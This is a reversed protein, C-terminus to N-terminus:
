TLCNFLENFLLALDIVILDHDFLAWDTIFVAIAGIIVILSVVFVVVEIILKVISEVLHIDLDNGSEFGIRAVVVVFLLPLFFLLLDLLPKFLIGDISEFVLICRL